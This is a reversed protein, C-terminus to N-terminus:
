SAEQESSPDMNLSEDTPLLDADNFVLPSYKTQSGAAESAAIDVVFPYLTRHGNRLVRPLVLSPGARRFVVLFGESIAYANELRAFTEWAQRFASVIKSRPNADAYQKAEVYFLSGCSLEIIDPRLGSVPVETLPTLGQDFLFKAFHDSLLREARRSDGNCIGRLHEADFMECRAAYRHVLARRSRGLAIRFRLEQHLFGLSDNVAALIQEADRDGIATLQPFLKADERAKDFLAHEVPNDGAPPIPNTYTSRIALRMYAIWANSEVQERFYTLDHEFHVRLRSLQNRLAGMEAAMETEPQVDVIWKAWHDLASISKKLAQVNDSNEDLDAFTPNTPVLRHQIDDFAGYGALAGDTVHALADRIRKENHTWIASLEGRLSATTEGYFNLESKAEDAMDVIFGALRPDTHVFNLLRRLRILKLPGALALVYFFQGDLLEVLQQADVMGM